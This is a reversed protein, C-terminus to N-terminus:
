TTDLLSLSVCLSLSLPFFLHSTNRWLLHFYRTERNALEASSQWREPFLLMTQGNSADRMCTGEMYGSQEEAPVAYRTGGGWDPSCLFVGTLDAVPWLM